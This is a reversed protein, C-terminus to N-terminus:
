AADRKHGHRGPDRLDRRSRHKHGRKRYLFTSGCTGCKWPYYGFMWFVRRQLFGNRNIRLASKSQCIPCVIESTSKM